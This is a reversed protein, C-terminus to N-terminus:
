EIEELRVDNLYIDEGDMWLVGIGTILSHLAMGAQQGLRPPGEKEEAPMAGLDDFEPVNSVDGLNGRRSGCTKNKEEEWVYRM